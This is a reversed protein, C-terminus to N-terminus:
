YKTPMKLLVIIGSVTTPYSIIIALEYGVSVRPIIVTLQSLAGGFGHSEAPMKVKSGYIQVESTETISTLATTLAGTMLSVVVLGILVWVTAFARGINGAPCRDGYSHACLVNEAMMNIINSQYNVTLYITEYISFREYDEFFTLLLYLIM